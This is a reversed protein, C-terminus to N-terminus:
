ARRGVTKDNEVVDLKKQKAASLTANFVVEYPSAYVRTVCQGRADKVTETSACGGLFLSLVGVLLLVAGGWYSGIFLKKTSGM